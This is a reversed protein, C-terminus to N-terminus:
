PLKTPGMQAANKLAFVRSSGQKKSGNQTYGDKKVGGDGIWPMKLCGGFLNGDMDKVAVLTPGKNDCKQHFYVRIARGHSAM